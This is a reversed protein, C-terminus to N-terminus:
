HHDIRTAATQPLLVVLKIRDDTTASELSEVIDRVVTQGPGRRGQLNALAMDLPEGAVQEVLAGSPALVLAASEPVSFGGDSKDQFILIFILIFGFFILVQLAKMLGLFFRWIHNFFKGIM